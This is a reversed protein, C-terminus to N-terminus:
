PIAKGRWRLSGALLAADIATSPRRRAEECVIAPLTSERGLEPFVSFAPARPPEQEGGLPEAEGLPEM